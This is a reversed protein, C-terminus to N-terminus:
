FGKSAVAVICAFFLICAFLFLPEGPWPLKRWAGTVQLLAPEPPAWLGREQTGM